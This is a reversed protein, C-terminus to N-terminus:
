LAKEYWHKARLLLQKKADGNDTKALEQWNEGVEIQADPKKPNRLDQGAANKLKADSGRALYPLARDWEEKGFALWKGWALNAAADNPNKVLLDQAPKAAEYEKQLRNVLKLRQQVTDLLSTRSKKGATEGSRLVRGAEEYKDTEILE